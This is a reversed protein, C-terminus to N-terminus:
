AAEPHNALWQRVLAAQASHETIGYDSWQWPRQERERAQISEGVNRAKIECSMHRHSGYAKRAM